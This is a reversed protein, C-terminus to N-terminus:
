ENSGEPTNIYGGGLAKILGIHVVYQQYLLEVRELKKQIVEEQVQYVRLLNDIGNKQRLKTLFFRDSANIVIQDQKEKENYVARGMALLDSVEQFSKLILTNYEFVAENFLAKKAHINAGIAGATYVPLNLGPLAGISKSAWEFLKSWSTSQFGLLGVINVNPWYDAKASGAEYALADVRLIQAMVDPRRSLLEMSIDSPISIAKPLEPLPEALALAVDPGRGALINVIHKGVSIEQEINYIWQKAQFVAEESFLPILKSYLSNKWMKSQLDFYDQRLAYLEEYLEKRILNTKLAFYAQALAVSTILEIQAKEAVMAMEQSLAAKYLNRYKGWFDFEYFFSLSFDILQTNLPINPNLARYLGNKSLYQWQDKADFNILPFLESRAIISENKAIEIRQQVAQISPNREFAIEILSDLESLHYQKWWTAEPWQGKQFHVDQLAAAESTEITPTELLNEAFEEKSLSLTCSAFFLFFCYTGIRLSLKKM